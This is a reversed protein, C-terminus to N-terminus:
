SLLIEHKAESTTSYCYYSFLMIMAIMINLHQLIRNLTNNNTQM